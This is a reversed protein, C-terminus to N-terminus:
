THYRILEPFWGRDTRVLDIDAEFDDDDDVTWLKRSNIEDSGMGLLDFNEKLLEDNSNLINTLAEIVGGHAEGASTEGEFHLRFSEQATRTKVDSGFSLLDEEAGYFGWSSDSVNSFDIDRTEYNGPLQTAPDLAILNNVQGSTLNGGIEWSVYSGLSHGILNINEDSIGLNGLLRTAEEGVSEIWPTAKRLSERQNSGQRAASSWDLTLVQYGSADDKVANALNGMNGANSHNGHIVLWTPTNSKIPAGDISQISISKEEGDDNRATGSVQSVEEASWALDLYANGEAEALYVGVYHNGSTEPTWNYEKANQDRYAFDWDDSFRTWNEGDPSTFIRFGDDGQVTFKYTSNADFYAQHWTAVIFRDEKGGVVSSEGWDVDIGNLGDSRRAISTEGLLNWDWDFVRTTWDSSSHELLVSRGDVNVILQDDETKLAEVETSSLEEGRVVASFIAGEDGIADVINIEYDVYHGIEELVVSTIAGPNSANLELWEQSIYITETAGAFAGDAGAIDDTSVVEIEPIQSFDGALWQQTITNATEVNWSDDFALNMKDTFNPDVAFEQLQEAVESAVEGTLLDKGALGSVNLISPYNPLLLADSEDTTQIPIIIESTVDNSPINNMGLTDTEQNGFGASTQDLFEEPEFTNM